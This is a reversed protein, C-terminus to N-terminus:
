NNMLFYQKFFLLQLLCRIVQICRSLTENRPWSSRFRDVWDSILINLVMIRCTVLKGICWPRLWFSTRKWRYKERLEINRELYDDDFQEDDDMLLIFEGKAAKIWYNRLESANNRPKLDSNLNTIYRIHWADHMMSWADLMKDVVFIVEFDRFTQSQLCAAINKM